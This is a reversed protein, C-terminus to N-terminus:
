RLRSLRKQLEQYRARSYDRYADNTIAALENPSMAPHGQLIHATVRSLDHLRSQKEAPECQELAWRAALYAELRPNRSM